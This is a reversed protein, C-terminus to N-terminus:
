RHANVHSLAALAAVRRCYRHADAHSLASPCRRSPVIQARRCSLYSCPLSAAASDTRTPTLSLQLPLLAVASNTSRRRRSLSSCPCRRSPVIQARRCSLSSCPCRRSPVIQARRRARSLSSCPLSAVASNGAGDNLASSVGARRQLAHNALQKVRTTAAAADAAVEATTDTYAGPEVDVGM